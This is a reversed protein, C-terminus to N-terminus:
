KSDFGGPKSPIREGPWRLLRRVLDKLESARKTQRHGLEGMVAMLEDKNNQNERVHDELNSIAV